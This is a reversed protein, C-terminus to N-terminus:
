APKRRKMLEIFAEVRTILGATGTHEDMVLLLFPVGNAQARERMFEAVLSDPGCGMSVVMCFGDVKGLLFEFANYLEREYVWRINQAFGQRNLLVSQSLDEKTLIQYSNERFTKIIAGSIFEDELNYFHSILGILKKGVSRYNVTKHVVPESGFVAQRWARFVRFPNPCIQFGTQIHARAFNGRVTPSFLRVRDGLLMRAVDVIGIMKPCAYLGDHLWELRPFFVADVKDKLDILHGAVVKIPLCVESSVSALGKDLIAQDTRPSLVVETGLETLFRRWLEGYRYFLLGRPLGVKM